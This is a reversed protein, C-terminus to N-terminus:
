YFEAIGQFIGLAAKEKFEFTRLISEEQYNSLFGLEVLISPMQTERVVVFRASKVGLRNLGTCDTIKNLILEALRCSKTQGKYHFVEIGRVTSDPHSNSHISIFLEAKHYNAFYGREYLGIFTDSNRTLLVEAGAKELISKLQLATELNVDKERVGQKGCAGTDPGGHGPDIVITKGALNSSKLHLSLTRRDPSYEVNFSPLRNFDIEIRALNPSVNVLNIAKVPDEVPIATNLQSEFQVCPLDLQLHKSPGVLRVKELLESDSKIMLTSGTKTKLWQVANIKGPKKIELLNANGQAPTVMYETVNNSNGLDLTVSVTNVDDQNVRITRFPTDNPTITKSGENFTAGLLKVVLQNQEPRSIVKYHAPLSTKIGVKPQQGQNFLSVEDVSYNFVLISTNPQKPDPIINFRCAQKLEFVLMPDGSDTKKVRIQKVCPHKSKIVTDVAFHLKFNSIECVLREPEGLTYHKFTFNRSGVLLFAPREQYTINEVGLLYNEDWEFAVTQGTTEKVSMGLRDLFDVPLWLEGNKEFPAAPLTRSSGNVYYTTKGAYMKFNMNGLKFYLQSDSPSWSTAINFFKRLFPLNVFKRQNKEIACFESSVQQGEVRIALTQNDQAFCINAAVILIIIFLVIRKSTFM